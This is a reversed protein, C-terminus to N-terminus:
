DTKKGGRDNWRTVWRNVQRAIIDIYVDLYSRAASANVRAGTGEAKPARITSFEREGLTNYLPEVHDDVPTLLHKMSEAQRDKNVEAQAMAQDLLVNEEDIAQNLKPENAHDSQQLCTKAMKLDERCYDGRLRGAKARKFYLKGRELMFSEYTDGGGVLQQQLAMTCFEMTKRYWKLQLTCLALNNMTKFFLELRQFEPLLGSEQDGAVTLCTLYVDIADEYQKKAFLENGRLKQANGWELRQDASLTQVYAAAQELKTGFDAAAQESKTSVRASGDPLRTHLQFEGVDELSENLRKLIDSTTIFDSM